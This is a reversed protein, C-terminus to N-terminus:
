PSAPPLGPLATELMLLHLGALAVGRLRVVVLAGDAAVEEIEAGDWHPSAGDPVAELRERVVDVNAAATSADEFALTVITFPEGDASGGAAGLFRYPALDPLADERPPAIDLQMPEIVGGFEGTREDVTVFHAYLAGAADFLHAARSWAPDFGLMQADLTARMEELDSASIVRGDFFAMARGRGLDDFLPLANRLAGQFRRGDGWAYVTHGIITETTAAECADCAELTEVIAEADFDGSVIGWAQTPDVRRDITAFADVDGLSFGFAERTRASVEVEQNPPMGLYWRVGALTPGHFPGVGGLSDEFIARVYAEEDAPTDPAEIGAFERWAALDGLMLAHGHSEPIWLLLQEFTGADQPIAVSTAQVTGESMPAERTPLVRVDGPELLDLSTARYEFSLVGDIHQSYRMPIQTDPDFEVVVRDEFTDDPESCFDPGYPDDPEIPTAVDSCPRTYTYAYEFPGLAEYGPQSNGRYGEISRFWFGPVECSGEETPAGGGYAVYPESDADPESGAEWEEWRWQGCGQWELTGHRLPLEDRMYDIEWEQVFPVYDPPGIEEDPAAGRLAVFAVVSIAVVGAVAAGGGALGLFPLGVMARLFARMRAVPGFHARYWEAVEERRRLGLRALLESVHYKAGDLTIGLEDAIEANTRGAAILRAVERQRETTAEPRVPSIPDIAPRREHM